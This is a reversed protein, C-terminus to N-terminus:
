HLGSQQHGLGPHTSHPDASVLAKLASLCCLSVETGKGCACPLPLSLGMGAITDKALSPSERREGGRSSRSHLNPVSGCRVPVLCISGPAWPVTAPGCGSRQIDVRSAEEQLHPSQKVPFSMPREVRVHPRKAKWPTERRSSLWGGESLRLGLRLDQGPRLWQHKLCQPDRTGPRELLSCGNESGPQLSYSLPIVLPGTSTCHETRATHRPTYFSLVQWM